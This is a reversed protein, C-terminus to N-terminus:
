ERASHFELSSRANLLIRETTKEYETCFLVLSTTDIILETTTRSTLSIWSETLEHNRRVIIDHSYESAITKKGEQCSELRMRLTVREYLTSHEHAINVRDLFLHFSPVKVHPFMDEFIIVYQVM